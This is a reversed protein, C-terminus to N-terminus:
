AKIEVPTGLPLGIEEVLRGIEDNALGICGAGDDSGIAAPDDTGHIAVVGDGEGDSTLVNSFGSLGYAYAGYPGGPDPPQLLEKLFYVEGPALADADGVSIAEDFTVQGRDYVLLRHEALAVEIRYRVSSVSVDATHVWGTSGSPQVPLYVEMRDGDGRDKVLFVIPIGPASTVQDASIEQSPELADASPYVAIVDGVAQAVEAAPAVTTTTTADPGGATM